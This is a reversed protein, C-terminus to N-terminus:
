IHTQGASLGHVAVLKGLERAALKGDLTDAKIYVIHQGCTQGTDVGLNLTVYRRCMDIDSGFKFFAGGGGDGRFYCRRNCM